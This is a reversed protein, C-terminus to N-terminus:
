THVTSWVGSKMKWKTKNNSNCHQSQVSLPESWSPSLLTDWQTCDAQKDELYQLFWSLDFLWSSGFVQSYWGQQSTNCFLLKRHDLKIPHIKSTITTSWMVWHLELRPELCFYIGLAIPFSCNNLNRCLLSPFFAAATEPVDLSYHCFPDIKLLTFIM